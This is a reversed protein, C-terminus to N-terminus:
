GSKIKPRALLTDKKDTFSILKMFLFNKSKMYNPAYVKAAEL